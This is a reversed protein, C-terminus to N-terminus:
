LTPASRLLRQLVAPDPFPWALWVPMNGGATFFDASLTMRKSFYFSTGVLIVFYGAIVIYGFVQLPCSSTM